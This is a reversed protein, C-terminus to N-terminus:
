RGMEYADTANFFPRQCLHELKLFREPQLSKLTGMPETNRLLERALEREGIELLEFIVQEYLLILKESPLKLSSVQALVSDWKGNHIDSLFSELNDVTNLSIDTETQLARLSELLGNEKMFQQMLRIVDKSDIEINM